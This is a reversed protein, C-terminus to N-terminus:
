RIREWIGVTEIHYTQPFMDFPTIHLLRYGKRTLRRADRAMTAVDCSVYAIIEPEMATIADLVEGPLGSRPPDVLVVQAYEDRASLYPLAVEAPAEYLEVHDFEDLNVAFDACALPASEVALLRGVRPALFASFLGVGSYVELLTTAPTLPLHDLLHDVIQEAVPLNVQFFSPASVRFYRGKVQYVLYSNGSLVVMGDLDDDPMYVASLPFDVHFGPPKPEDGKLLLLLDDEAGARLHVRQIGAPTEFTLQPWVAAIPEVPLYCTQIPVVKHSRWAQFGLRGAEDLHFQVHNRYGWPQPAPVTPRVPPEELGGIRQLQDRVIATKATLQATYNLHQYHCGGCHAFHPCRPAIRDPAPEVISLVEGRAFRPRVETLRVRVVEGPVAYPVFVARGDPLRGIAEGGYAWHSLTVEYEEGVQPPRLLHEVDM